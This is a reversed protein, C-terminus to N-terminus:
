LGGFYMGYIREIDEGRGLPGHGSYVIKIGSEHHLRILKELSKRLESLGGGTLDTRGVGDAFVTDGSFLSKSEPEYLCISGMSHGPTHIVKLVLDGLNISDGERLKIDVHVRPCDVGFMKSLIKAEDGKEMADADIEHAAVLGGTKERVDLLGATHDYHCHTSILYNIGIHLEDIKKLITSPAGSDILAVEGGTILYCNSRYDLSM